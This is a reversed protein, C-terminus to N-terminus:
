THIRGFVERSKPKVRKPYTKIRLNKMNELNKETLDNKHSIKEEMREFPILITNLTAISIIDVRSLSSFLFVQGVIYSVSSFNRFMGLSFRDSDTRTFWMKFSSSCSRSRWCSCLTWSFFLLFALDGLLGVFLLFLYIWFKNMKNNLSWFRM